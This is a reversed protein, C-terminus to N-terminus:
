ISKIRSLIADWLKKRANMAELAANEAEAWKQSNNGCLEYLLEKALLSHKEGDLELHRNLYYLLKKVPLKKDELEDVLAQFMKPILNERSFFFVACVEHTKGANALNMTHNVFQSISESVGIHELAVNLSTSNKLADILKSIQQTNAGCEDMAYLYLEFHSAYSGQGDEDSEEELVIENIFRAFIPNSNPIWPLSIRTLDRQLRKLLSMFDWVAFVHHQMFERVRDASNIEVYLQHTELNKGIDEIHFTNIM